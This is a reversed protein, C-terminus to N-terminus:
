LRMYSVALVGNSPVDKITFSGELDTIVGNSTGKVVVSAGIIPENQKDTVKGTITLHQAHM